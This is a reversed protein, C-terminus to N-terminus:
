NDEEKWEVEEKKGAFELWDGGNDIVFWKNKTKSWIMPNGRFYPRKKKEKIKLKDIEPWKKFVTEIAYDLNRSKAWESVKSIAEQAKEVSGALYLLDKAPKTYRSYIIKRKKANEKVEEISLGKTKFYYNVINQIDEGESNNIELTSLNKNGSFKLFEYITKIHRNVTNETIDKKKIESEINNFDGEKIDEPFLNNELLYKKVIKLGPNKQKITSESIRKKKLENLFLEFYQSLKKEM